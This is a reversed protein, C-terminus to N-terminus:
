SWTCLGLYRSFWDLILRISACSGASRSGSEKLANEDLSINGGHDNSDHEEFSEDLYTNHNTGQSRLAPVGGRRPQLPTESAGNRRHCKSTKARKVPYHTAQCSPMCESIPKLEVNLAVEQLSMSYSRDSGATAATLALALDSARRRAEKSNAVGIAQTGNQPGEMVTALM